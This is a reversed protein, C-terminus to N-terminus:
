RSATRPGLDFHNWDSPIGTDPDTPSGGGWRLGAFVGEAGLRAKVVRTIAIQPMLDVGSAPCDLHTSQDISATPRGQRRLSDQQEVTRLGSIISFSFELRSSMQVLKEAVLDRIGWQSAVRCPDDSPNVVTAIM